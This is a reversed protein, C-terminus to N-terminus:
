GQVAQRKVLTAKIIRVDEVPRDRNDTIVAAISDVVPLGKIIEGFVTHLQDLHPAGGLTKYVQRHAEPLKYGRLWKKEIANLQDDTFVKGQVLCFQSGSSARTPNVDDPMRATQIVGRKHFLGARFEAPITYGVGGDGLPQGPKATKSNPDGTQVIFRNIVRHFLMGDYYHQKVLKIFNDRHLPTSDSLRILIVGKSTVLEVDKTLDNKRLGNALKPNCAAVMLVSVILLLKQM